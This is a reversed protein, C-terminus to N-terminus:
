PTACLRVRSFRSLLLLLLVNILDRQLIFFLASISTKRSGKQKKSSGAPTPLKVEPGLCTSQAKRHGGRTGPISDELGGRVEGSKLRKRWTAGTRKRSIPFRPDQGVALM